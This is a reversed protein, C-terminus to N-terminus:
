VRAEPPPGSKSCVVGRAAEAFSLALVASPEVVASGSRGAVGPQDTGAWNSVGKAAALGDVARRRNHGIFSPANFLMMGDGRALFVAYYDSDTVRYLDREVRVADFDRANVAAGLPAPLASADDPLVPAGPPGLATSTM